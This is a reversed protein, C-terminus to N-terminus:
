NIIGSSVQLVIVFTFDTYANEKSVMAALAVLVVFMAARAVPWSWKKICLRHKISPRKVTNEPVLNQIKFVM